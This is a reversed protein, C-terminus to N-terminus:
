TLLTRHATVVQAVLFPRVDLGADDALVAEGEASADVLLAVQDFAADVADLV